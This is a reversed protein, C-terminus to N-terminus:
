NIIKKFVEKKNKYFYIPKASNYIKLFINMIHRIIISDIIIYTCDVYKQTLEYNNRFYLNWNIMDNFELFNLSKINIILKITINNTSCYDYCKNVIYQCEKMQESNLNTNLTKFYFINNNILKIEIYSTKFYM